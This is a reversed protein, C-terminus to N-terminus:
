AAEKEFFQNKKALIKKAENERYDDEYQRIETPEYGRLKKQTEPSNMHRDALSNAFIQENQTLRRYATEPIEEKNEAILNGEPSKIKTSKPGFEVKTYKEAPPTKKEPGEPPTFFEKGYSM